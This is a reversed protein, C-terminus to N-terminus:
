RRGPPLDGAARARETLWTGTVADLAAADAGTVVRWITAKSPPRTGPRAAGCRRYLGALVDAPVDATVDDDIM